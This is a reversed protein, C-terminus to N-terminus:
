AQHEQRDDLEGAGRLAFHLAFVNCCAAHALHHYGTEPDLDQGRWWAWWHRMAAGFLRSYVLGKRWNNPAYKHAGYQLVKAIEELVDFPLLQLPPKETDFKLGGPAVAAPPSSFVPVVPPAPLPLSGLIDAAVACSHSCFERGAAVPENCTKCQTM